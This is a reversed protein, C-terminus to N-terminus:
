SICGRSFLTPGITVNMCLCMSGKIVVCLPSFGKVFKRIPNKQSEADNKKEIEFRVLSYLLHANIFLQPKLAAIKRISIVNFWNSCLQCICWM